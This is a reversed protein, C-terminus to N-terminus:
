ISVGARKLLSQVAQSSQGYSVFIIELNCNAFQHLSKEIAHIIWDTPNGFAGGGLLTLYIRRNGTRHKELLAHHFTAEYAADLVWQAFPQWLDDQYPHYALPLASCYVQSVCHQAQNLTVQTNQQLGVKILAKLNEAEETSLASLFQKFKVLGPKSPMVYGNQMTWFGHKKHNAAREFEDLMNLQCQDTQGKQGAMDVLYNRYLTGAACAMACVPGQTKDYAYGTIGALPTVRPSVMELLNFQSAVQFIANQNKPDQHLVQVDGVWESLQNPQKDQAM